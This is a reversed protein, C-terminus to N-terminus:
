AMTALVEIRNTVSTGVSDPLETFVAVAAQDSQEMPQYLRLYCVSKCGHYGTYHWPGDYIVEVDVSQTM